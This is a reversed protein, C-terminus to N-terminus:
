LAQLITAIVAQGPKTWPAILEFHGAQDVNHLGITEGKGQARAQYRWGHVPPVIGDYIGSVLTQKVGLPLLAMPSTDAYADKGRSAGNVLKEVTGIGCAHTTASAAYALDPLAAIGVVAKVPLPEPTKLPSDSAIRSRAAAWLALHGGASHGATVVRALDLRYPAALVRLHDLGQGVDLFTSPYGGGQVNTELAVRRYTMSWVAVGNRRLADALFAVLEVGPYDSLWCGGHILVVVPLAANAPAAAPQPLWLEGTQLAHPGYAIVHDPTPRAPRDLIQKYTLAQAQIAFACALLGLFLGARAIFWSTKLLTLM